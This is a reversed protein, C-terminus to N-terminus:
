AQKLPVLLYEATIIGPARVAQALRRASMQVLFVFNRRTRLDLSICWAKAGDALLDITEDFGSEEGLLAWGRVAPVM